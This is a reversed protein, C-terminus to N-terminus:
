WIAFIKPFFVKFFHYLFYDILCGTFFLMQTMSKYYGRACYLSFEHTITNKSLPDIFPQQYRCASTESCEQLVNSSDPCVFNPPLFLFSQGQIIFALVLWQLALFFTTRKQYFENNGALALAEDVTIIYEADSEFIPAKLHYNNIIPDKLILDPPIDM